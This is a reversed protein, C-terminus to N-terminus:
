FKLESSLSGRLGLVRSLVQAREKIRSLWKRSMSHLCLGSQIVKTHKKQCLYLRPHSRDPRLHSEFSFLPPFFFKALNMPSNQIYILPHLHCRTVKSRTFFFFFHLDKYHAQLLSFFLHSFVSPFLPSPIPHSVKFCGVVVGVRRKGITLCERETGRSESDRTKKEWSVWDGAKM